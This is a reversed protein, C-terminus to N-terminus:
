LVVNRNDVSDLPIRNEVKRHIFRSAKKLIDKKCKQYWGLHMLLRDLADMGIAAFVLLLLQPFYVYRSNRVLLILMVAHGGLCIILYNTLSDMPRKYLTFFSLISLVGILFYVGTNMNFLHIRLPNLLLEDTMGSLIWEQYNGMWQLIFKNRHMELFREDQISDYIIAIYYEKVREAPYENLVKFDRADTQGYTEIKQGVGIQYYINNVDDTTRLNWGLTRFAGVCLQSCIFFTCLLAGISVMKIIHKKMTKKERYYRKVYFNIAALILFIAAAIVPICADTRLLTGLTFFVGSAIGYAISTLCYARMFFLIAIWCFLAAWIQNSLVSNYFLQMPFITFLGSAFIGARHNRLMEQLCLYLLVGIMSHFVANATTISLVSLGFVRGFVAYYNSTFIYPWGESTATWNYNGELAEKAYQISHEFDSIPVTPEQWVWILRPLLAFLFILALLFVRSQIQSLSYYYIVVFLLAVPISLLFTIGIEGRLSYGKWIAYSVLIAFVALVISLILSFWAVPKRRRLSNQNAKMGEGEREHQFKLQIAIMACLMKYATHM